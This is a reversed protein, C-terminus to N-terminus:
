KACRGARRADPRRRAQHARAGRRRHGTERWQRREVLQRSVRAPLNRRAAAGGASDGNRGAPRHERDPLKRRMPEYIRRRFSVMSLAALLAFMLWQLWDAFHVGALDLFGVILAASGIFVLYFQADVFALESGLLIAGVAIWAWWQM